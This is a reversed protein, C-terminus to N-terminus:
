RHDAVKAVGPLLDIISAGPAKLRGLTTLDDRLSFIEATRSTDDPKEVGIAAIDLLVGRAVVLCTFATDFESQDLGFLRGFRALTIRLILDLARQCPHVCRYCVPSPGSALIYHLEKKSAL